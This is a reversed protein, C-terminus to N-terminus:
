KESNITKKVAKKVAEQTKRGTFKEFEVKSIDKKIEKAKEFTLVDINVATNNLIKIM